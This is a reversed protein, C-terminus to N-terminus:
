SLFRKVCQQTTLFEENDGARNACLFDELSETSIASHGNKHARELRASLEYLGKDGQEDKIVSKLQEISLSSVFRFGDSVTCYFNYRGNHHCIIQPM